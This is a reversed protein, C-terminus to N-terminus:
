FRFNTSNSPPASLGELFADYAAKKQFNSDWLLAEGEGPFTGPVWSYRDSVGWVTIGVCRDVNLCSRAVRNYADALEQLKQDNAPTNMRIDLETYAVDVGLDATTRLAATLDEESPTPTEQTPTSETVLHAQYGVGDIKVGYQQVLKVIRAAGELKPGLYELNYDNYYLKADPDAEAAIRFAIPIYAEGIVRLFVNDRYSGDENLAENVVDWHTCVGKYRGMLENIHNTMVDILTANDFGSNSVWGPLQSYWVLTHCRLQKGNQKAWNAHQDAGSLTFQGRNPETADWKMANEPTISGFETKVINEETSDGRVTLSTGIYERGSAVMAENLTQTQREFLKMARSDHRLPKAAVLGSLALAISASFRM